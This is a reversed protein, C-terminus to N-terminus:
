VPTAPAAGTLDSGPWILQCGLADTESSIELKGSTLRHFITQLYIIEQRQLLSFAATAEPESPSAAATNAVNDVAATFDLVQDGDQISLRARWQPVYTQLVLRLEVIIALVTQNSTVTLHRDDGSVALPIPFAGQNLLFQLALSLSDEVFPPLLENSLGEMQRYLQDFRALWDAETDCSPKTALQQLYRRFGFTQQLVSDRIIDAQRQQKQQQQTHWWRWAQQEQQHTLRLTPAINTM